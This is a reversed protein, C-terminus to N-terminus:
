TRRENVKGCFYVLIIFAVILIIILVAMFFMTYDITNKPNRIWVGDSTFKDGKKTLSKLWIKKMLVGDDLEGLNDGVYINLKKKFDSRKFKFVNGDAELILEEDNELRKFEYMTHPYIIKRFPNKGVVEIVIDQDSYNLLSM